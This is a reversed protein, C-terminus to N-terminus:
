RAQLRQFLRGATSGAGDPVAIQRAAARNKRETTQSIRSAVGSQLTTEHIRAIKV